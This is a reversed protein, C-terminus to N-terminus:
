ARLKDFHADADASRADAIQELLRSPRCRADDEDILEVREPAAVDRACGRGPRLKNSANAAKARAPTPQHRRGGGSQRENFTKFGITSIAMEVAVTAGSGLASLRLGGSLGRSQRRRHDVSHRLILPRESRDRDGTM